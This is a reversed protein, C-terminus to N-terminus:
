RADWQYKNKRSLGDITDKDSVKKETPVGKAPFDGLDEEECKYKSRRVKDCLSNQESFVDNFITVRNTTHFM